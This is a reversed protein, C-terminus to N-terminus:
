EGEILYDVQDIEPRPNRAAQPATKVHLKCKESPHAVIENYDAVVLFQEPHINRFTSAGAVFIVKIR